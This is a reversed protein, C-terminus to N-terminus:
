VFFAPCHRVTLSPVHLAIRVVASAGRGIPNMIALQDRINVPVAGSKVKVTAQGQVRYTMEM